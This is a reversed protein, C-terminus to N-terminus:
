QLTGQRAALYQDLEEADGVETFIGGVRHSIAVCMKNFLNHALPTDISPHKKGGCTATFMVDGTHDCIAIVGVSDEPFDVAALAERLAHMQELTAM